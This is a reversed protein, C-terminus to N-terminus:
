CSGYDCADTVECKYESVFHTHFKQIVNDFYDVLCERMINACLESNENTHTSLISALHVRMAQWHENHVIAEQAWTDDAQIMLSALHAKDDFTVQYWEQKDENRILYNIFDVVEVTQLEPYNHYGYSM